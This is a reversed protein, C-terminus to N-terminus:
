KKGIRVCIFVTGSENRWYIELRKEAEEEGEKLAQAQAEYRGERQLTAAGAEDLGAFNRVDATLVFGTEAAAVWAAADPGAFEPVLETLEGSPDLIDVRDLALPGASADFVYLNGPVTLDAVFREGHELDPATVRITRTQVEHGDDTEVPACAFTTALLLAATTIRALM